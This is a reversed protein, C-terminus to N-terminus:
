GSCHVTVGEVISDSGNDPVDLGEEVFKTEETQESLLECTNLLVFPSMTHKCAKKVAMKFSLFFVSIVCGIVRLM